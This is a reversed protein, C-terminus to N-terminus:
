KALMIDLIVADTQQMGQHSLTRLNKISAEANGTVIGDQGTARAGSVALQACQVACTAATAIKLACGPKAGDCILGSIDAIMNQIANSATELTGGLLYAIGCASGISAAIACGCLASLNGINAKIHITVLQSLAQARLLTEESSGLKQAAAYVPLTAAIGQNGSGATSMVPLACGSMRADSAAATLASVYEGLSMEGMTRNALLTKGVQIGWAGRLGEQAILLNMVIADNLFALEDTKTEQVFRWIEELTLPDDMVAEQTDCNQVGEYIVQHDLTLRSVHRHHDRVECEAEHGGGTAKVAIYLKPAEQAMIIRIAGSAALWSAAAITETDAADRLVELGYASCGKLLGLAAAIPLGTLNTGPIGVGMANKLINRSVTIEATEVAYGLTERARACALAVAIPETCGLAPSIERQLLRIMDGNTM